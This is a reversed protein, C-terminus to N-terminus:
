NVRKSLVANTLAINMPAACGHQQALELLYGNLDAIETLKGNRVDQLTSSYNSSTARLVEDVSELLNDLLPADPVATFIHEIEACLQILQQRAAPLTLLEGNRCSHVVTLANVACNIAFKHWLRHNIDPDHQINMQRAPLLDLMTQINHSSQHFQGLWAAGFGAHVVQYPAHLWAGHSTSLCYVRKAGYQASILHQSRLGNQLLVIRTEPTLAHSVSQLASEVQQAKTAVLVNAIQGSISDVAAAGLPCSFKETGADLLIGGASLYDTVAQGSRLLLTVERQGVLQSRQWLRAAWLCGMAGAGIVHWGRQKAVIKAM